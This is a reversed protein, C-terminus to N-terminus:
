CYLVREVLGLVASPDNEQKVLASIILTFILEVFQEETFSADFVDRRVNPDQQLIAIMGQQIHSWSQAMREQGDSKEIGIFSM